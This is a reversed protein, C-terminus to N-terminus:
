RERNAKMERLAAERTKAMDRRVDLMERQQQLLDRAMQERLEAMEVRDIALRSENAQAVPIAAALLAAALCISLKM